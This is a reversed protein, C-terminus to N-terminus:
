ELVPPIAYQVMNFLVRNISFASWFPPVSQSRFSDTEISYKLWVTYTHIDTVPSHLPPFHLPTSITCLNVRINPNWLTLSNIKGINPETPFPSCMWMCELSHPITDNALNPFQNHANFIFKHAIDQLHEVSCTTPARRSTYIIVLPCCLPNMM